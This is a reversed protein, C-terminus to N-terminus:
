CARRTRRSARRERRSRDAGDVAAEDAGDLIMKPLVDELKELRERAERLRPLSKQWVQEIAASQQDTIGLEARLEADIWWKKPGERGGASTRRAQREDDKDTKATRSPQRRAASGRECLEAADRRIGVAFLLAACAWVLIDQWQRRTIVVGGGGRQKGANPLGSGLAARRRGCTMSEDHTAKPCTAQRTM